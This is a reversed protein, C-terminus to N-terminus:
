NTLLYGGSGDTPSVCRYMRLGYGRDFAPGATPCGGGELVNYESKCKPCRAIPLPNGPHMEVRIDRSHEVPCSLDYAIPVGAETTYPDVGSVLLVGGYGTRTRDIWAFDAPVSLEKIFRRSEGFGTAGYKEWVPLPSLMIYVPYSPIRGSDITTCGEWSIITLLLLGILPLSVIRKWDYNHMM